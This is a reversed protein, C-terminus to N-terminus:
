LQINGPYLSIPLTVKKDVSEGQLKKELVDIASSAMLEIPQVITPLSPLLTRCLKTGDFGIIKLDEPVKKGYQEAVNIIMAADIDSNAFIGDIEPYQAFMNEFERLKDENSMDFYVTIIQPKLGLSKMTDEYAKDRQNSPMDLQTRGTTHVINRCGAEYLYRTAQVGGDYNDCEIVPVKESVTREISVIPLNKYEYEKIGSNHTGVILGDIQKTLLQNLYDQEKQSDNLSNGIIVKYGKRYLGKELEEILEGFFPNGVMPFLLGIINTKQQYLQRALINPHYNLEEMAQFVKEKTKESIYGRNNLVRSVTTKSVNALEAVDELKIKM